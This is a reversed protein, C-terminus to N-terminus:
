RIEELTDAIQRTDQVLEGYSKLFIYVIFTVALASFMFLIFPLFGSGGSIRAGGIVAAVISIVLIANALSCISSGASSRRQKM